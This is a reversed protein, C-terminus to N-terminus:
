PPIVLGAFSWNQQQDILGQLDKAPLHNFWQINTSNAPKRNECPM